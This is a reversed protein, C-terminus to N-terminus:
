LRGDRDLLAGAHARPAGSRAPVDRRRSTARLRAPCASGARPRLSPRLSPQGDREGSRDRLVSTSSRRAGRSVERRRANRRAVDPRRKSSRKPRSFGANEDERKTARAHADSPAYTADEHQWDAFNGRYRLAMHTSSSANSTASRGCRALDSAPDGARRTSASAPDDARQSRPRERTRHGLLWRWARIARRPGDFSRAADDGNYAYYLFLGRDVAAQAQPKDDLRPPSGLHGGGGRRSLVALLTVNPKTWPATVPVPAYSLPLADAECAPPRQNSGLRAWWAPRNVGTKASYSLQNSRRGTVAFTTPELGMLTAMKVLADCRLSCSRHARCITTGLYSLQYLVRRFLATDRNSEARPM